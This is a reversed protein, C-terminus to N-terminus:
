RASRMLWIGMVRPYTTAEERHLALTGMASEVHRSGVGTGPIRSVPLFTEPIHSSYCSHWGGACVFELVNLGLPALVVSYVAPSSRTRPALSCPATPTTISCSCPTVAERVAIAGIGELAVLPAVQTRDPGENVWMLRVVDGNALAFIM